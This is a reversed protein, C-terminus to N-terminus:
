SWYGQAILEKTAGIVGKRHLMEVRKGYITKKDEDVWIGDEVNRQYILNRLAKYEGSAFTDEVEWIGDDNKYVWVNIYGAMTRTCLSMPRYGENIKELITQQATTM